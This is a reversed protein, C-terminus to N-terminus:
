AKQAHAEIPVIHWAERAVGAADALPKCLGYELLATQREAPLGDGLSLLWGSRTDVALGMNHLSQGPKAALAGTGDLYQQYLAAQRDLDRLGEGFEAAMGADRALAALRGKFVADVDGMTDADDGAEAVFRVYWYPNATGQYATASFPSAALTEQWRATIADLAPTGDALLRAATEETLTGTEVLGRERQFRSLADSTVPGLIGDVGNGYPGFSGVDYSQAVLLSQAAAVDRDADAAPLGKVARLRMVREVLEDAESNGTSQLRGPTQVLLVGDAPAVAQQVHWSAGEALASAATEAAVADPQSASSAVAGVAATQAAPSSLDPSAAAANMGEARTAALIDSFATGDAGAATAQLGRWASVATGQRLLSIGDTSM